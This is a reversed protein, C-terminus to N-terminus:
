EQAVYKMFSRELMLNYDTIREHTFNKKMEIVKGQLM